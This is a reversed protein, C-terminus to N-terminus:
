GVHFISNGLSMPSTYEKVKTSNVIWNIKGEPYKMYHTTSCVTSIRCADIINLRSIDVTMNECNCLNIHENIMDINKQPTTNDLVIKSDQGTFIQLM